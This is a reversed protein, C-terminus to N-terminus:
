DAYVKRRLDETVPPPSSLAFKFAAEIERDIESKIKQIKQPDLVKSETLRKELLKVPCREKWRKFEEESRYSLHDDYNPGCHERWRYTFFELFQPGGGERAAKLAQRAIGFAEVADNGDASWAKWGHAEAVRHIPRDPQRDKLPTYVSYQNNECVFLLPLKKLASFNMSEHTVGEEFCGDGFFSVAVNGNKRLAHAWASGVALPVTGGVIPTCGMFGAALDILHMSGGYGGTCGTAKGYLEAVFANLDGGKALYHGHARHNSYVTDTKKLALCVGAPVAEQGVCLHVPCRMEQEQYREALAEEVLRLRLVSRYLELLEAPTLSFNM